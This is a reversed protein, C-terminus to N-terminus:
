LAPPAIRLHKELQALSQALGSLQEDLIDIAKESYHPMRQLAQKQNLLATQQKTLQEM